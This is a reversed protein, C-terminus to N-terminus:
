FPTNLCSPAAVAVCFSECCVRVCVCLRADVGSCFIGVPAAACCCCQMGEQQCCCIPWAAAAACPCTRALYSGVWGVTPFPSPRVVRLQKAM